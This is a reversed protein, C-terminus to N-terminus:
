VQIDVIRRIVFFGVVQLLLATAMLLRGINEAWLVSMYDRNLLYILFGMVVPLVALLYGTFRGQATYVRVQRQITFRERITRALNDLIEALNGGVERPILVGTNFIRVDPLDIREALGALSEELPLGFKQEDFVRRFEPGLPNGMEDAVMKLSTSFAHGARIARGLLDIADPFLEEFAAVRKAKRRRAYLWPITAGLLAPPLAFAAFGTFLYGMAGAGLASMLTLMVFRSPSWGLGAQEILRRLDAARPLMEALLDLRGPTSGVTERFLELATPGKEQAEEEEPRGVRALMARRAKAEHWRDWLLGALVVTLTVSAMALCIGLWLMTSGTM